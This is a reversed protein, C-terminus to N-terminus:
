ELLPGETLIDSVIFPHQTLADRTAALFELCLERPVTLRLRPLVELGLDLHDPLLQMLVEVLGHVHDLLFEILDFLSVLLM